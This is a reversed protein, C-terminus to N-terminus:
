KCKKIKNKAEVVNPHNSLSDPVNDIFKQYWIMSEKKYDSAYYIDAINKYSSYFQNDISICKEFCYIAYELSESDGKNMSLVGLNFWSSSQNPCLSISKLGIEYALGEHNNHKAASAMQSLEEARWDPYADIVHHTEVKNNVWEKKPIVSIFSMFGCQCIAAVRFFYIDGCNRLPGMDGNVFQGTNDCAICKHIETISECENITEPKYSYELSLGKRGIPTIKNNKLHTIM